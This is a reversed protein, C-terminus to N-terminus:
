FEVEIISKSNTNYLYMARDYCYFQFFKDNASEITYIDAIFNEYRTPIDVLILCFVDDFLKTEDDLSKCRLLDKKFKSLSLIDKDCNMSQSVIQKDKIKSVISVLDIGKQELKDNAIVVMKEM